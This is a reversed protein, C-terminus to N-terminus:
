SYGYRASEGAAEILARRCAGAAAHKAAFLRDREAQWAAEATPAPRPSRTKKPSPKPPDISKSKPRNSKM